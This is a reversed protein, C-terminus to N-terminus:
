SPMRGPALLMTSQSIPNVHLIPLMQSVASQVTAFTGGRTTAPDFVAIVLDSYKLMDENRQFLAQVSYEPATVHERTARWRMENWLAVDAPAWREAQQPFPLFAWLENWAFVTAQAWWIDSGLAMGSIGVKMGNLDRLKVALRELELHVWEHSEAPIGQPRHGTVMVRPFQPMM